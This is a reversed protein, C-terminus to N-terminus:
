FCIIAAHRGRKTLVILAYTRMLAYSAILLKPCQQQHATQRNNNDTKDPKEPHEHNPNTTTPQTVNPQTTKVADTSHCYHM